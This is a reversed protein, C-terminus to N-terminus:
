KGFADAMGEAFLLGMNEAAVESTIQEFQAKTQLRCPWRVIQHAQADSMPEDNLLNAIFVSNIAAKCEDHNPRVIVFAATLILVGVIFYIIPKNLTM